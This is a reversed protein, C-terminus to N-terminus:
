PKYREVRFDFTKSMGDITVTLGSTKSSQYKQDILSTIIKDGMTGSYRSTVLHGAQGDPVPVSPADEVSEAGVIYIRYEGKPIGDKLKLSGLDYYGNKNLEGRALFTDTEFCVTGQTLPSGDDSFTVRGGFQVNQSCGIIGCLLFLVASFYRRKIM